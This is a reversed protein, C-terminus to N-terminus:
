ELWFPKNIEHRRTSASLGIDKLQYATMQALQRRQRTRTQWNELVNQIRESIHQQYEHVPHSILSIETM